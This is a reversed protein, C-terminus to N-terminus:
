FHYTSSGQKVSLMECPYLVFFCWLNTIIAHAKIPRIVEERMSTGQLPVRIRIGNVTLTKGATQVRFTRRPPVVQIMAKRPHKATVKKLSGHKTCLMNSANNTYKLEQDGKNTHLVLSRPLMVPSPTAKGSICHGGSTRAPIQFKNLTGTIARRSKAFSVTPTNLMWWTIGDSPVDM